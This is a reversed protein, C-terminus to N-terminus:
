GIFTEIEKRERAIYELKDMFDLFSQEKIDRANTPCVNMCKGCFICIDSNTKRYDIKDIANVPCNKECLGCQICKSDGIPTPQKKLPHYPHNGKIKISNIENIDTITLIKDKIDKTFKYLIDLDDKDPRSKAVNHNLCHEGIVAAASIVKINIKELNEKLELLADGYDRNGYSVITVSPTNNGRLNNFIEKSISPLRDAYVPFGIVVLDDENFIRKKDRSELETLDIELVDNSLKNAINNVIKKTSGNPSFYISIIRKINM